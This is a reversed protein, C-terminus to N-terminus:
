YFVIRSKTKLSHYFIRLDEPQFIIANHQILDKPLDPHFQGHILLNEGLYLAYEGLANKITRKATDKPMSDGLLEYYFDPLYYNTSEQKALVQLIGSPLFSRDSLGPLLWVDFNAEHMVKDEIKLEARRTKRELVLYPETEDALEKRLQLLKIEQDIKTIYNNLSENRGLYEENIKTLREQENAVVRKIVADFLRVWAITFIITSLIFVKKM